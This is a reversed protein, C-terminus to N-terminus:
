KEEIFKDDFSLALAGKSVSGGFKSMAGVPALVGNKFLSKTGAAVGSIISGEQM